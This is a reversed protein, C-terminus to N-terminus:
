NVRVRGLAVVTGEIKRQNDLRVVIREGVAASKTAKGRMTVAVGDAQYVVDILDGSKVLQPPAVAPARLPEGMSILRRTMWGVLSDGTAAPEQLTTAQAGGTVHVNALPVYGIDAPAIITGRALDRSAVAVRASQAAAYGPLGCWLVFAALWRM